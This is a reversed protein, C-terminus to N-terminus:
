KYKADFEDHSVIDLICVAKQDVSEPSQVVAYVIRTRRGEKGSTLSFGPRAQPSFKRVKVVQDGIVFGGSSASKLAETGIGFPDKAIELVMRETDARLKLNGTSYGDVVGQVHVASSLITGNETNLKGYVPLVTTTTAIEELLEHATLTNMRARAADKQKVSPVIFAFASRVVQMDAESVPMKLSRKRGTRDLGAITRLKTSATRLYAAKFQEYSAEIRDDCESWRDRIRLLVDEMTSDEDGYSQAAALAIAGSRMVTSQDGKLKEAVLFEDLCANQNAAVAGLVAEVGTMEPHVLDLALIDKFILGRAALEDQDIEPNGYFDLLSSLVCSDATVAEVFQQMVKRAVKDADLFRSSLDTMYTSARFMIVNTIRDAAEHGTMLNRGQQVAVRISDVAATKSIYAILLPLNHLYNGAIDDVTAPRRAGGRGVVFNDINSEVFRHVKDNIAEDSSISTILENSERHWRDYALLDPHVHDLFVAFPSLHVLAEGAEQACDARSAVEQHEGASSDYSPSLRAHRKFMKM